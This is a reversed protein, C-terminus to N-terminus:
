KAVVDDTELFDKDIVNVAEKLCYELFSNATPRNKGSRTLTQAVLGQTPLSM